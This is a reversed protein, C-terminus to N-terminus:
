TIAMKQQYNKNNITCQWGLFYEVKHGLERSSDTNFEHSHQRYFILEYKEPPTPLQDSELHIPFTDVEFHGDQLDVSITHNNGTLSFKKVTKNSQLVDYFQSRKEPDLQSTDDPTQEYTTGDTFDAKFLYFLTM